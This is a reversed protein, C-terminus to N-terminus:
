VDQNDVGPRQDPANEDEFWALAPPQAQLYRMLRRHLVNMHPEIAKAAARSTDTNQAPPAFDLELNSV